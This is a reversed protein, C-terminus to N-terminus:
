DEGATLEARKKKSFSSLIIRYSTEIRHQLDDRAATDWRVRVWSRHFYPAKEAAGAEILLTATDTDPTKVSIARESVNVYVFMKEGITWSDHKGTAPDAWIAGPLARCMADIDDRTM